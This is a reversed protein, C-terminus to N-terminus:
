TQEMVTQNISYIYALELIEAGGTSEIRFEYYRGSDFSNGNADKVREFGAVTDASGSAASSATYTAITSWAGGDVKYKLVVQGSSTLPVFSLSIAKLQKPLSFDHRTYRNHIVGVNPSSEWYSTGNFSSSLNSSNTSFGLTGVANYVVSYFDGIACAALVSTESDDTTAGREIGVSWRGSEKSRGLTWLGHYAPSTSGGVIDASFYLRDRYIFNVNPNVTVTPSTMTEKRSIIEKILQPQGGSYSKIQVSAKDAYTSFYNQTISESIGILNGELTNLVKLIGSGWDITEPLNTITTDRDWLLVVSHFEGPAAPVKNRLNLGIALYNGHAALVPVGYASPLTLATDTWNGGTSPSGNCTAIFTGSSTIYPIYLINDKPHVVGQGIGTYTLSHSDGSLGNTPDIFAIANTLGYFLTRAITSKYECFLDYTPGSAGHSNSLETWASANDAKKWVAMVSGSDIGLGYM